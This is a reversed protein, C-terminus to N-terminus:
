ICRKNAKIFGKQNPLKEFFYNNLNLLLIPIEETENKRSMIDELLVYFLDTQFFYDYEDILIKFFEENLNYCNSNNSIEDENNTSTNTSEDEVQNINPSNLSNEDSNSINDYKFLHQNVLIILDFLSYNKEMFKKFFKFIVNLFNYNFTNMNKLYKKIDKKNSLFNFNKIFLLPEPIDKLFELFIGFVTYIDFKQIYTYKSVEINKSSEILKKSFLIKKMDGQKIIKEIGPTKLIDNNNFIDHNELYDILNKIFFISNEHIKNGFIFKDGEIKNQTNSNISSTSSSM